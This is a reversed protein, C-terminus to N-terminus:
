SWSFRSSYLLLGYFCQQPLKEEKKFVILSVCMCVTSARSANVAISSRLVSSMKKTLIVADGSRVNRLNLTELFTSLRNYHLQVIGVLNKKSARCNHFVTMNSGYTCMKLRRMFTWIKQITYYMYEYSLGWDGSTFTRM